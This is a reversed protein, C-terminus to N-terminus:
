AGEGLYAAVASPASHLVGRDGPMTQIIGPWPAPKHTSDISLVAGYTLYRAMQRVGWNPHASAQPLRALMLARMDEASFAGPRPAGPSNRSSVGAAVPQRGEPLGAPLPNARAARPPPALPFAPQWPTM